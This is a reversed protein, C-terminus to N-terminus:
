ELIVFLISYLVAFITIIVHYVFIWVYYQFVNIQDIINTTIITNATINHKINQITEKNEGKKHQQEM